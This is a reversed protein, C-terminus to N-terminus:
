AHISESYSRAWNLLMQRWNDPSNGSYWHGTLTVGALGSVGVQNLRAEIDSGMDYQQEAKTEGEYLRRSDEARPPAEPSSSGFQPNESQFQQIYAKSLADAQNSIWLAWLHREFVQAVQAPTKLQEIGSAVSSLQDLLQQYVSEQASPNFDEWQKDTFSQTQAGRNIFAQEILQVHHELAESNSTLFAMAGGGAAGAPTQVGPTSPTAPTQGQTASSTSTTVGAVNVSGSVAANAPNEILEITKEIRGASAGMAGLAGAAVWEFGAAFIIAAAAGILQTTLADTQAQAAQASQFGQTAADLGGSIRLITQRYSALREGFRARWRLDLDTAAQHKALVRQQRELDALRQDQQQDQPGDRQILMGNDHAPVGTIQAPRAQTALSTQHLAVSQGIAGAEQEFSDGAPGVVLPGASGTHRQQVVHTLEHALLRTEDPSVGPGLFIHNGTTFARAGVNQNLESSTADAHIRVSSFNFSLSQEMQQRVPATLSDGNSQAAQIRSAVETDVQGGQPGIPATAPAPVDTAPENAHILLKSFNHAAAAQEASAAHTDTDPIDQAAPSSSALANLWSPEPARHPKRASGKARSFM